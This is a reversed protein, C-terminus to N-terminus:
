KKKKNKGGRSAKKKGHKAKPKKKTIKHKKQKVVPSTKESPFALAEFALLPTSSPQGIPSVVAPTTFTEDAGYTTGDVNTAVVRYHYTTDPVLYNLTTSVAEEGGADGANGFIEAGGYAATEGIEFEYSTQLDVPDVIGSLTAATTSIGNPAGTSVTPPTRPGTTFTHDVGTATGGINTAVLAYHYTTEPQLGGIGVPAVTVDAKGSGVDVSPTSSGYAESTGYVFHYTTDSGNPNVTGSLLAITRGINSATPLQDDVSPAALVVAPGFIDVTTGNAVYVRENEGTGDTAIGFSKGVLGGGGFVVVPQFSSDFEAVSNQEDVFIENTSQNVAVTSGAADVKIGSVGTGATNFQSAPYMTVPGDEWLVGYVDEHSDVALNCPETPVEYLSSTYDTSVVPNGSPVYRDVYGASLSVYVDGSLGTAVGCTEFRGPGGGELVGLSTGDPGYIELRNTFHAVYIDGATPGAPSVAIQNEADGGGGVGTIVNTGRATFNVPNGSADFKYISGGAAETDYVYVDGSADAAVSQVDTFAGSEPGTPGFWGVSSRSVGASAAASWAVSCALTLCLAVAIKAPTSIRM